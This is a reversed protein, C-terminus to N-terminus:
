ELQLELLFKLHPEQKNSKRHDSRYDGECRLVSTLVKFSLGLISLHRSLYKSVIQLILREPVMAM